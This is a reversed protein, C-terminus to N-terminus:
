GSGPISSAVTGGIVVVNVCIMGFCGSRLRRRVFQSMTNPPVSEWTFKNFPGISEALFCRRQEGKSLEGHMALEAVCM